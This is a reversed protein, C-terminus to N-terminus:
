QCYCPSQGVSKLGGGAPPQKRRLARGKGYKASKVAQIQEFVCV